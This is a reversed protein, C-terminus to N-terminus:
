LPHYPPGFKMKGDGGPRSNSCNTRLEPKKLYVDKMDRIMAAEMLFVCFACDSEFILLMHSAGESWYSKFRRHPCGTVGLVLRCPGCRSARNEVLGILADLMKGASKGAHCGTVDQICPHWLPKPIAIRDDAAPELQMGSIARCVEVVVDHGAPMTDAGAILDDEQM